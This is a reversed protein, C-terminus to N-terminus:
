SGVHVKSKRRFFFREAGLDLVEQLLLQLGAPVLSNSVSVSIPTSAWPSKALSNLLFSASRSQSAMAQGFSYPPRFALTM